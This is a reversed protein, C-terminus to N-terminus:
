PLPGPEYWGVSCGTSRVNGYPRHERAAHARRYVPLGTPHLSARFRPLWNGPTRPARTRAKARDALKAAALPLNTRHRANLRAFGASLFKSVGQPAAHVWGFNHTQAANSVDRMELLMERRQAQLNRAIGFKNAAGLRRQRLGDDALSDLNAIAERHVRHFAPISHRIAIGAFMRKASPLSKPAAACFQNPAAFRDSNTVLPAGIRILKHRSRMCLCSQRPQLFRENHLVTM